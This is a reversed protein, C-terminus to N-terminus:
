KHKFLVQIDKLTLGKLIFLVVFFVNISIFVLLFLNIRNFSIVFLGMFLSSIIVKWSIRLLNIKFLNKYIYLIQHGLFFFRSLLVSAAAGFYSFKPILVVCSAILFVTSFLNVRLDVHQNNTAILVNAFIMTIGYPILFWIAIRLIQGSVIFEETYLLVVIKDAIILTGVCVPITLVFLYRVSKECFDKLKEISYQFTKVTVPQIAIKFSQLILRIVGVLKMAASYYGVIEMGQMMSLIIITVNGFISNFVSIGTFTPLLKLMWKCLELDIKIKIKEIYRYVLFINVFLGTVPSLAVIASLIIIGHGQSLIFIGLMLKLLNECIMSYFVYEAKEFAIFIAHLILGPTTILLSASIIYTSLIVEKSYGAIHAFGSMAFMMLVSSALGLLSGNVLFTNSKLKDKAVERIILQQIGMAAITQFTWFLSIVLSFKGMGASGLYRAVFLILVFSSGMRFITGLLVAGTNKAIDSLFKM